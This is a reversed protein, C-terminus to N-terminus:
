KWEHKPYKRQLERKIRPYHDRWFGALDQTMQVPRQNPALIQLTPHVRGMALAPLKTVDYLEQIRISLTPPIGDEYTLKFLRGPKLELREPAHRDLLQRQDATLWSHVVPWVPRDKIDKYSFAGLCIQELLTKREEMGIVPLMLEPCWQALNNLRRIWQEVRHDWAKIQLVGRLVEEALLDAARDPPPQPLSKSELMLDRFLRDRQAVVRKQAKDYSVRDAERFDHPFVERLWDEEVATALNLLVNLSGGRGEIEQVEAAVIVSARVVSERALEGTRGHVLAYRLTGTDRQVALQDSFGALVCKMVAEDDPAKEAIELGQERAIALFRDFLPRVQRASQAHIGLRRCKDLQYHNKDAYSWARILRFFDSRAEEGLFDDRERHASKGGKRVLINRGQTLAAILAITRVCHYAEAALLMRAYRPHVPYAQMRRGIQTIKGTEAHVAGLDQLLREARELSKTEPPELWNFANMDDIGAAKLTLIVEALDLRRIEPLDFLGRESHDRETWLRICRGTATRGARGMRQDASARSIKEILLTNIGRYPDFRAVRAQGSDIVIRVGDITIATEAVNTSVVVKRRDYRAVAADQDKPPLEGHLPLIVFDRLAPSAGLARVAQSIEYSGPMFILADGPAGDRVVRELERAALEWPPIEEKRKPEPLYEVEVAFTRGESELRACPSLYSELLTTDLTASMVGILLDPRVTDQLQVARALTVDGYLHREHFEDFLIASIGDLNPHRIMQRLLIGETEFKIRTAPSSIDEFRIQYGVEDGLRGGREQAVRAALLRTALRRPQLVIVRGDGLAGDDLLMQPIQTSKGSGTPARIILRRHKAVAGRLADRIEYIPLSSM